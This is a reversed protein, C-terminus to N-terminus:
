KRSRTARAPASVAEAAEERRRSAVTRKAPMKEKQGKNEKDEVAKGRAGAGLTASAVTTTRASAAKRGRSPASVSEAKTPVAAKRSSASTSTSTGASAITTAKRGRSPKSLMDEEGPFREAEMEAAQEDMEALVRKERTSRSKPEKPEVVKPASLSPGAMKSKSATSRARSPKSAPEDQEAKVPEATTAAIRRSRSKRASAPPADDTTAKRVAASASRRTPAAPIDDVMETQPQVKKGRTAKKVLERVDMEEFEEDAKGVEPEEAKNVNVLRGAANKMPVVVIEEEELPDPSSPREGRLSSTATIKHPITLHAPSSAAVRRPAIIDDVEQGSRQEQQCDSEVHEVEGVDESEEQAGNEPELIGYMDKMGEMGPTQPPLESRFMSKIGTFNPTAPGQQATEKLLDKVGVLSPTFTEKPTSPFMGRLGSLYPTKPATPRSILTKFGTFSPTAPFSVSAGALHETSPTADSTEAAIDQLPATLLSPYVQPLPSQQLSSIASM